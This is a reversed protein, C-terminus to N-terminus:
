PIQTGTADDIEEGLIPDSELMEGTLSDPGPGGGVETGGCASLIGALLLAALNRVNM